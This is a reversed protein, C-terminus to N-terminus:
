GGLFGYNGEGDTAFRFKLSDSATLNNNLEEVKAELETTDGGQQEPLAEMEHSETKGEYNINISSM